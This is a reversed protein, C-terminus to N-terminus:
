SCRHRHHVQHLFRQYIVRVSLWWHVIGLKVVGHKSNQRIGRQQEVREAVPHERVLLDKGVVDHPAVGHALLFDSVMEPVLRQEVDIDREALSVAQWKEAAEPEEEYGGSEPVFNERDDTIDEWVEFNRVEVNVLVQLREELGEVLFRPVPVDLLFLVGPADELKGHHVIFVELLNLSGLFALLHGQLSNEGVIHQSVREIQM